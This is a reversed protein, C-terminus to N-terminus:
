FSEVNEAGAHLKEIACHHREKLTQGNCKENYDDKKIKNYRVSNDVFKLLVVFNSM